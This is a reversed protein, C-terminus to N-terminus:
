QTDAMIEFVLFNTGYIAPSGDVLFSDFRSGLDLAELIISLFRLCFQCLLCMEFRLCM